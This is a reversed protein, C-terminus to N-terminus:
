NKGKIKNHQQQRKQNDDFSIKFEVEDPNRKLSPNSLADDFFDDLLAANGDMNDNNAPDFWAALHQNTNSDGM